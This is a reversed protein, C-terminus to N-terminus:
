FTHTLALFVQVGSADIRGFDTFDLSARTARLGLGLFTGPAIRWDLGTRAYGGLAATADNETHEAHTGDSLDEDIDIELFGLILLPGAAAYLRLKEGLMTAAYPGASLDVLFLIQDLDLALTNRDFAFADVDGFRFGMLMAGEIGFPSEKAFPMQGAFGFTPIPSLDLRARATGSSPLDVEIEDDDLITAGFLAQFAAGRDANGASGDSSSWGGTEEIGALPRDIRPDQTACGLLAAALL